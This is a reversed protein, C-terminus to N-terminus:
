FGSMINVVLNYNQKPVSITHCKQWSSFVCNSCDMFKLFRSLNADVYEYSHLQDLSNKAIIILVHDTQVELGSIELLSNILSFANVRVIVKVGTRKVIDRRLVM